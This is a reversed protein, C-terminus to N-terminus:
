YMYFISVLYEWTRYKKDLTSRSRWIM